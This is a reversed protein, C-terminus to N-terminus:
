WPKSDVGLYQLPIGLSLRMCIMEKWLNEAFYLRTRLRNTRVLLQFNGEGLCEMLRLLSSLAVSM